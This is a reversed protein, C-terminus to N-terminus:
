AGRRRPDRRRASNRYGLVDLYSRSVSHRCRPDCPGDGPCREQTQPPTSQSRAPTTVVYRTWDQGSTRAARTAVPRVGSGSPTNRPRPCRSSRSSTSCSATRRDPLPHDERLPYGTNYVENLWLATTTIERGFDASALPHSGGVSSPRRATRSGNAWSHEPGGLRGSGRPRPYGEFAEVLDEFTLASVMAAYRLAQLEM